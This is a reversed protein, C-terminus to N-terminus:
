PTDPALKVAKSYPDAAVIFGCSAARKDKDAKVDESFGGSEEPWAMFSKVHVAAAAVTPFACAGTPDPRRRGRVAGEKPAGRPAPALHRATVSALAVARSVYPMTLLQLAVTPSAKMPRIVLPM